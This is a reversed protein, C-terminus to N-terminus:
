LALAEDPKAEGIAPNIVSSRNTYMAPSERAFNNDETCKNKLM